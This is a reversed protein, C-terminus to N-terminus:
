ENTRRCKEAEKHAALAMLRRDRWAQRAALESEPLLVRRATEIAKVLDGEWPRAASQSQGMEYYMDGYRRVYDAVGGPANLDITEFPGMFSWRLGLGERVAIDVDDVDAIGDEVLRFAEHLLAGQLRNLVFGQIERKLVIPAQGVESMVRHAQALVEPATWPAPSLEVLPILYPPNVPHAILCRRRGALSETFESVPIASSSSALIAAPDALRDLEAFIARKVDVREAASEQVFQAGDLAEALNSVQVIRQRVEDARPVLGATELDALRATINELAARTAGQDADFLAVKWGARAFVIAWGRGVLGAGVVAIKNM